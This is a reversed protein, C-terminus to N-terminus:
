AGWEETEQGLLMQGSRALNTASFFIHASGAHVDRWCRQLPNDDYLAGGGALAFMTDAVDIAVRMANQGALRLTLRQDRSVDDGKVATDWASALSDLMSTRAARLAGECRAVEMQVVQETALAAGGGRGKTEALASFEDLSRRAVGLPFGTMLAGLLGFFSWRFHPEDHPAQEFIPNATRERPILVGDVLVDHSATGRLGAVHWTDLIEVDSAPMFLFRWQPQDGPGAVFAGQCFWSAHPSGSNFPFRGSLRVSAGDETPEGRGVPGFLGAMGSLPKTDLLEQAVAPELWSTFFSTNLIMSTWGTSGDARSLEEVIECATVPDVPQGGVKSPVFMRFVGAAGIKDVLDTPVCRAAETETARATVEDSLARVDALTTM